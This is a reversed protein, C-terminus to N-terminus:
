CQPGSVGAAARARALLAARDVGALALARPVTGLEARLIGILLDRSEMQARRRRAEHSDHVARGLASKASTGLSVPRDSEVPGTLPEALSAMGAFALSQRHEDRLAAALRDHDLGAESLLRGAETEATAALALLMHEAEIFRAGEKRAEVEFQRYQPIASRAQKVLIQKLM